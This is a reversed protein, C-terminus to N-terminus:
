SAAKLVAVDEVVSDVKGEPSLRLETGVITVKESTHHIQM